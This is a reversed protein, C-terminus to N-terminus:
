VVNSREYTQLYRASNNINILYHGFELPTANQIQFIIYFSYKLKWTYIKALYIPRKNPFDNAINSDKFFEFGM